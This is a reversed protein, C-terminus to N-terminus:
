AVSKVKKVNIVNDDSKSPAFVLDGDTVEPVSRLIYGEYLGKDLGDPAQLSDFLQTVTSSMM